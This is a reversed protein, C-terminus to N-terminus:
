YFINPFCDTAKYIDYITLIIGVVCFNYDSTRTCVNRINHEPPLKEKTTSLLGQRLNRLILHAFLVFYIFVLKGKM